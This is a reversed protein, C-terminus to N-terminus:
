RGAAKEAAVNRAFTAKAAVGATTAKPRRPRSPLPTSQPALLSAVAVKPAATHAPPASPSSPTAPSAVAGQASVADIPQKEVSAKHGLAMQNSFDPAKSSPALLTDILDRFPNHDVGARATPQLPSNGVQTTAGDQPPTPQIMARAAAASGMAWAGISFRQSLEDARLRVEDSLARVEGADRRADDLTRVLDFRRALQGQPQAWPGAAGVTSPGSGIDPGSARAFSAFGEAPVLWFNAIGTKMREVASAGVFSPLRQMLGGAEGGGAPEATVSPSGRESARGDATVALPEGARAERMALLHACVAITATLLALGAREDFPTCRKNM